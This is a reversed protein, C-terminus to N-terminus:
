PVINQNLHFVNDPDYRAKVRGLQEYSAGYASRAREAGEDMLFNSYAGDLAHPALAAAFGATWDFLRNDHGPELSAATIMQAFTAGRWPWATAGGDVRAAAGDLPYLHTFSLWTPATEGFRVCEAAVADPLAGFCRGAIVNRSGLAAIPDFATQLAPYPLLGVADFLPPAEARFVDLAFRSREPPGTNCWVLACARRLRIEDPFPDSPPVTLVAFFAYVDDPQEPLWDRYLNLIRETEELHWLMPGGVVHRVPHLRLELETVVGFNGGGGRLAWFLDPECEETARVIRGDALVVEAGLLNDIALGCARNLYGIGGGLTFGGVGVTSVTASPTALGFAHAARDVDGATAGGGVWAVSGGADVEVHRIASLDIVLGGDVSCFGATSHGGGRVAPELGEARAFRVAAAVDAADTCRAVLA